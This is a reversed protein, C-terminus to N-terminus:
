TASSVRDAGPRRGQRGDGRGRHLARRRRHRHGGPRHRRRAGGDAGGGGARVEAPRAGEEGGGSRHRDAEARRGTAVRTATKRLVKGLERELQRVGAERTYDSSSAACCRTRSPSTRRCWATASWRGRGSTAAPSTRGERRDHLRRLPDSGHPRAAPGPHQRGRQRHRHVDRAVPRAARGPLSGPLQPEAGPRAGRAAGVVSRRALRTGAQRGRRAPHGPEDHRRRAPRPGAAGAARRHLHAPPRPDRVRRPRRRAVHARVQPRDGQRDVRRDLDQGHGSPRGADPDRGLAQRRDLGRDKRLKRVALYETIRTKVDDLGSHDADLM